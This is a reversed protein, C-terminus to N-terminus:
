KLLCHKTVTMENVLVRETYHAQQFDVKIKLQM